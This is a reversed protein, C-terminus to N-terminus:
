VRHELKQMQHSLLDRAPLEVLEGTHDNVNDVNLIDRAPLEMLEGTHNNVSDVNLIDVSTVIEPRINRRLRPRVVPIHVVSDQDDSESDSEESVKQDELERDSKTLKLQEELSEDELPLFSIPLLLNRHLIVKGDEPRVDYVTVEKHKSLVVYVEEQWKNALKSTGVLATNRVLVRDRGELSTGFVRKDYRQKGVDQFVRAKSKALQYASDLSSRLRSM